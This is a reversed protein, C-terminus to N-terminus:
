VFALSEVGLPAKSVGCFHENKPRDVFVTTKKQIIVKNL